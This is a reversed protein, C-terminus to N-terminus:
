VSLVPCPAERIIAYLHSWARSIGAGAQGRGVIVLDAAQDLVVRRIGEPIADALVRASINLAWRSDMGCAADFADRMEEVSSIAGDEAFEDIHLLCIKAGYTQALVGTLRLAAESHASLGVACIISRYGTSSTVAPSSEHASTLVPCEVDHLVKATVSGLLLRRFKGLGRTPMMILDSNEQQAVWDIVTAPEGDEIRLKTQVAAFQAHSFDELRQERERRLKLFELTYPIATPTNEGSDEFRPMLIYDPALDFAHLVTVGAGFRQAMENATPAMALAADSFDVPFLIKRFPMM